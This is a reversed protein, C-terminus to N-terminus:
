TAHEPRQKPDSLAHMRADIRRQFDDLDDSERVPIRALAGLRAFANKMRHAMERIMLERAEAHREREEALAQFAALRRQQLKHLQMALITLAAGFLLIALPRGIRDNFRGYSIRM